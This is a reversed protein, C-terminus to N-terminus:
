RQAAVPKYEEMLASWLGAALAAAVRHALEARKEDLTAREHDFFVGDPYEIMLTPEAPGPQRLELRAKIRIDTSRSGSDEIYGFIEGTVYHRAALWAPDIRALEEKLIIFEFADDGLTAARQNLEDIFRDFLPDAVAAPVMVTRFPVVFVADMEPRAAFGTKKEVVLPSGAVCAALLLAFGFVM